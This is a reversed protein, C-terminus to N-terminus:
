PKEVRRVARIMGHFYKRMHEEANDFGGARQAAAKLDLGSCFNGGTGTIVLCRINKDAAGVDLAEIIAANVEDTLGNRSEPRDLAIWRVGDADKVKVDNM